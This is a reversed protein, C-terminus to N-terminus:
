CPNCSVKHRATHDHHMDVASNYDEPVSDHCYYCQKREVKGVGHVTENNHCDMCELRGRGEATSEMREPNQSLVLKEYFTHDFEKDYIQVEKEVNKHCLICQSLRQEGGDVPKTNEKRPIFHCLNCAKEDIDFHKDGGQYSHCATCRMKLGPPDEKLHTEHSFPLTKKYPEKKAFLKERTHCGGNMCNSDEIERSLCIGGKTGTHCEVCSVEKCATRAWRDYAPRMSHCSACYKPRQPYYAITAGIAGGAGLFALIVLALLKLSLGGEQRSHFLNFIVKVM